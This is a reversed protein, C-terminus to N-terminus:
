RYINILFRFMQRLTCILVAQSILFLLELLVLTVVELCKKWISRWWSYSLVDADQQIVSALWFFFLASFIGNIKTSYVVQGTWIEWWKTIWITFMTQAQTCTYSAPFSVRYYTSAWHDSSGTTTQREWHAMSQLARKAQPASVCDRGVRLTSPYFSAMSESGMTRGCSLRESVCLSRFIFYCFTLRVCRNHFGKM